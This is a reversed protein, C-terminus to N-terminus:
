SKINKGDLKTFFSLFQKNEIKILIDSNGKEKCDFQNEKRNLDDNLASEKEKRLKEQEALRKM